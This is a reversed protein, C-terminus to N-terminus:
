EKKKITVKFVGLIKALLTPQNQQLCKNIYDFYNPAFNEFISLDNKSMEKLVFREDSPFFPNKNFKLPICHDINSPTVTILHQHSAPQYCQLPPYLSHESIRRLKVLRSFTNLLVVFVKMM